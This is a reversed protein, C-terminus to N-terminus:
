RQNSPLRQNGSRDPTIQGRFNGQRDYFRETGYPTRESQGIFNGQRDYFRTRGSESSQSQGRYNGQRDYFREQAQAPLISIGVCVGICGLALGPRHFLHSM